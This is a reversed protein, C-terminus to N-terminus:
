NWWWESGKATADARVPALRDSPQPKELMLWPNILVGGSVSIVWSGRKQVFSAKSDVQKPAEFEDNPLREAATLIPMSYGAKETLRHKAILAGVVALDICNRLQGFIPEKAALEEYRATMNDAWKQATASAKGTSQVAGNSAVFEEETMAKVSAGRLEFSLGEEDVAVPDYNPALWWRPMMNGTRSRTLDLFSPLGAVPSRDFKMALRKMRYDAAVMVQAFHSTAPVGTVSIVQPGLSEEIGAIFQPNPSSPLQRGLL